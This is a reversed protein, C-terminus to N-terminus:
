QHFHVTLSPQSHRKKSMLKENQIFNFPGNLIFTKKTSLESQVKCYEYLYSVPANLVLGNNTPDSAIPTSQIQVAKLLVFIFFSFLMKLFKDSLPDVM